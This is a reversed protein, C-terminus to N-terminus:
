EILNWNEKNIIIAQFNTIKVIKNKTIKQYNTLEEDLSPNHHPLIEFDILGFGELNTLGVDNPDPNVYAAM